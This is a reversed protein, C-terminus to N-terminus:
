RWAGRRSRSMARPDVEPVRRRRRVRAARRPRGPRGHGRPARPGRARRSGAADGGRGAGGLRGRGADRGPARGAGGPSRGWSTSTRSPSCSRCASRACGRCRACSRWPRGRRRPSTRGPDLLLQERAVGLEEARAVLASLLAVVDDVVAGGYDAFHETKPAARTHMLVLGAGTRAAAEGLRPDALGSVDNLVHAGAALALDAVEAKWTDVSVTVGEAVLREVLPVVRAAEVEAATASTYTVGSEGGVDVLDAGDAVLAMAHDVQRGLTDLRVADSFSDPNANVIGMLLPRGPRAALLRDRCRLASV